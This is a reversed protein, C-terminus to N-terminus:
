LILYQYANALFQKFAPKIVNDGYWRINFEEYDIHNGNNDVGHTKVIGGGCFDLIIFSYKNNYSNHHAIEVLIHKDTSVSWGFDGDNNNMYRTDLCLAIDRIIEINDSFAIVRTNM